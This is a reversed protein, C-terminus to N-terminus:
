PYSNDRSGVGCGKSLFEAWVRYCPRVCVRNQIPDCVTDWGGQVPDRPWRGPWGVRGTGPGQALTWAMEGARYRTGPGAHRVMGGARYRTGPGADRGDWGGQVPDRPWRATGTPPPPTVTAELRVSNEPLTITRNQVRVELPAATSVTPPPPPTSAAADPPPGCQGGEGVVQGAPCRCM